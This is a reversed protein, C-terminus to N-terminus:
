RKGKHKVMAARVENARSESWRAIARRDMERRRAKEMMRYAHMDRQAAKGLKPALPQPQTRPLRPKLDALNVKHPARWPKPQKKAGSVRCPDKPNKHGLQGGRGAFHARRSRIVLNGDDDRQKRVTRQITRVFSSM